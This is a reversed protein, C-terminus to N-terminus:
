FQYDGEDGTTYDDFFIMQSGESRPYWANGILKGERTAAHGDLCGVNNSRPHNGTHTGGQWQATGQSWDALLASGPNDRGVIARAGHGRANGLGCTSQVYAIMANESEAFYYWYSTSGNLEATCNATDSPCKFYRQKLTLLEADGATLPNVEVGLYGGGLLKLPTSYLDPRTKYDNLYFNSTGKAAGDRHCAIWDHNNNAYMVHGLAIQKIQALCNASRARERAASLAPLLMAALIAIIAIVVLLEILTFQQRSSYFKRKMNYFREKTTTM